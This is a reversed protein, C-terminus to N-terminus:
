IITLPGGPINEVVFTFPFNNDGSWNTYNDGHCIINGSSSANRLEDMFIYHFICQNLLNDSISSVYLRTMNNEDTFRVRVPSISIYPINSNDILVTM